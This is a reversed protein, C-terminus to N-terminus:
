AEAARGRRSTADSAHLGETDVMDTKGDDVEVCRDLRVGRQEAPLELVALNEGVLADLSRGDHEARAPDLQERRGPVVRRNSPKEGLAAGAHVM